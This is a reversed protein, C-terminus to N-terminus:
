SGPDRPEGSSSRRREREERRRELEEPPEFPKLLFLAPVACALFSVFLGAAILPEVPGRIVYILFMALVVLAIFAFLLSFTRMVDTYDDVM